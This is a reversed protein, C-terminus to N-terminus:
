RGLFESSKGIFIGECCDQSKRAYDESNKWGRGMVWNWLWKWM